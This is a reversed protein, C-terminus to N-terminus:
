DRPLVRVGSFLPGWELWSQLSMEKPPLARWSSSPTAEMKKKRKKKKAELIVGQKGALWHALKIEPQMKKSLKTM